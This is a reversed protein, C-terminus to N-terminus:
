YIASDWYLSDPLVSECKETSQVIETYAIEPLVSECKKTSQVIETCVIELLLWIWMIEWHVADNWDLSDRTVTM